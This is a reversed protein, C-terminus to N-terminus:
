LREDSSSQKWTYPVRPDNFGQVIFIPKTIKEANNNPSIQNLYKRMSSYGRMVM